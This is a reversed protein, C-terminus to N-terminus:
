LVFDLTLSVVHAKDGPKADAQINAFAATDDLSDLRVQEVQLKTDFNTAFDWRLGLAITHENGLDV